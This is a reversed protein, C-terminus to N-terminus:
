FGPRWFGHFGMPLHHNLHVKAIPGLSLKEAQFIALYSKGLLHSYVESLVYGSGAQSSPCYIPETVFQGRGFDFTEISNDRMNLRVLKSDLAEQGSIFYADEHKLGIRRQDITPMEVSKLNFFDVNYRTNLSKLDIYVRSVSSERKSNDLIQEGRMIKAMFSKNSVTDSRGRFSVFDLVLQNESNQFANVGHWTVLSHALEIVKHNGGKRPILMIKTKKDSDFYTADAVTTSGIVAMAMKARSLFLPPLVFVFYDETVLWDHFNRSIRVSETSSVNEFKQNFSFVKVFRTIPDVTTLHLLPEEFHTIRHHACYLLGSDNLLTTEGITELNAPNLEILPQLEDTAFLRGGFEFVTVSAQNKINRVSNMMFSNRVPPVKMAFSPYLYRGAKEESKYKPTLVHRSEFTVLGNYFNFRRVMGDADILIRRRMEGREFLGPGARLLSGYLDPPLRGEVHCIYKPTNPLSTVLGKYPVNKSETKILWKKLETPFRSENEVSAWQFTNEEAFTVESFGAVLGAAASSKIFQRRNISNLNEPV